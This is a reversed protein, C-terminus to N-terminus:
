HLRRSLPAKQNQNKDDKLPQNDIDKSFVGGLKRILQGYEPKNKSTLAKTGGAILISGLGFGSLTLPTSVGYSTALTTLSGVIIALGAIISLFGGIKKWASVPYKLSIKDAVHLCKNINQENPFQIIRNTAVLCDVLSQLKGDPLVTAKTKQKEVEAILQKTVAKAPAFINDDSLAEVNTKLDQLVIRYKTELDLYNEIEKNVQEGYDRVQQTVYENEGSQLKSSMQEYEIYANTLHADFVSANYKLKESKKLLSLDKICADNQLRDFGARTEYAKIRNPDHLKYRTFNGNDLDMRIENSIDSINKKTSLEGLKTTDLRKWEKKDFDYCQISEREAIVKALDKELNLNFQIVAEEKRKKRRTELIALIERVKKKDADTLSSNSEAMKDSNAMFCGEPM